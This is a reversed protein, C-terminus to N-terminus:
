VPVNALDKSVRDHRGEEVEEIIKATFAQLDDPNRSTVIGNSTVVERDLWNAGANELDTRISQYSTMDRGEVVGAEILLWPAHCVAAVVRGDRVFDRVLSVAKDNVRLLDPNIQGGPLVLADYDSVDVSGLAKDADVEAGWDNNDWGRIAKGDPTIVHVTAGANRLMERPVELESQEFGKTALIAIKAKSITPM